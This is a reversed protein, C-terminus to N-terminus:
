TDLTANRPSLRCVVRTGGSPGPGVELKGGILGARYRMTRLGMGGAQAAENGLGKGDDEIRLVTEGNEQDLTIRVNRAGSHRVANSVAEQAIRYLHVAVRGDFVPDPHPCDFKCVIRSGTTTSSVLEGLADALLGEELEIPLLGRSLGRVKGRTRDVTAAVDAALKGAPTEASALMEALTEAKLGLGTLEQGVDDHLDQAIGRRIAEAATLLHEEFDAREVVRGLQMGIGAMAETTRGDPEIVRDSFFELVAAVRQGVLAPFAMATAIGLEEAVVARCESLDRRVDASWEPKGSIFVRGPLDHGRYFRIGLTAERFRRFRGPDQPYHLYAPVLEDPKGAAPLLVHGFSWGNYAAVCQLCYEIAQEADQPQNVMVAVDHLMQLARTREAVRQDLTENLSRLDNEVRKRDTIDIGIGVLYSTPDVDMRRGTFWYERIEDKGLLRSEVEALGNEFVERIKGAVLQRDDAFITRLVDSGRLMEATLGTVKEEIQNWRVFRGRSDLVYFVGLISDIVIDAFAKERRLSEEARGTRIIQATTNAVDELLTKEDTDIKRKSFLALVGLPTGQPSRLRYGAFSVLGLSAAWGRDHVRPDHTVDNTVFTPEEGSAIRGIKYCDVPVRRHSGDIATYRGSSAVLRLCHSRDRCVDPGETVAAHRCGRQCLDGEDLLWIRAFDAGFVEVVADTISKLKEGLDGPGLLQEKLSNLRALREEMRKRGTIDRVFSCNYERGEFEVYNVTIEVPVIGGDKTRHRSEFTFSDRRKLEEWHKPWGEAPFDPNVDHVTMSLLEERSYGLHQCACANAYFFRADSGLWFVVDGAHDVSFQTLRLARELRMRDTVDRCAEIIYSVEGTEDLVPAAIVEVFSEKGGVDYHTHTVEVLAKTAIVQRLTCPEDKGACPLDRHHSLQHCTLCVTPDIGGAMERAAHNALVIRCDTDIVLLIDPIADIVTQLFAGSRRITEEMEKGQTIAASTLLYAALSGLVVICGTLLILFGTIGRVTARPRAQSIGVRVTGGGGHLFPVAVDWVRGEKTELVRVGYSEGAPVPNAHVLEAPCGHEFTDALLRQSSDVVFMYAIDRDIGARSQMEARLGSRDSQFDRSAVKEVICKAALLASERNEERLAAMVKARVSFIVASAFFLLVLLVIVVLKAHM